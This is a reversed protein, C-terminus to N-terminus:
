KRYEFNLSFSLVTTGDPSLSKAVSPIFVNKFAPDTAFARLAIAIDAFGDASESRTSGSVAMKGEESGNYSRLVVIPENTDKLKPVTAEIKEIIKSWYLQDTEITKLTSKTGLLSSFKLAESPAAGASSKKLTEKQTKLEELSAQLSSAHYEFYASFGAVILFAVTASVLFWSRNPTFPPNEIM